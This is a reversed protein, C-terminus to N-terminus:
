AERKRARESPKRELNITLPVCVKDDDDDDDDNHVTKYNTKFQAQKIAPQDNTIDTVNTEYCVTFDKNGHV